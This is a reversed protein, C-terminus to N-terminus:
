YTIFVFYADTNFNMKINKIYLFFFSLFFGLVVKMANCTPLEITLFSVLIQFFFFTCCPICYRYMYLKKHMTM